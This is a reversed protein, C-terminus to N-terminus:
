VNKQSINNEKWNLYANLKVYCINDIMEDLVDELIIKSIMKDGIYLYCINIQKDNTEVFCSM